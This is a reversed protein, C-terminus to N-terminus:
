FLKITMSRIGRGGDTGNFLVDGLVSQRFFAEAVLFDGHDSHLTLVADQHFVCTHWGFLQDHLRSMPTDEDIDWQSFPRGRAEVWKIPTPDDKKRPKWLLIVGLEGGSPMYMQILRKKNV